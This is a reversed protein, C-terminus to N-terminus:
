WRSTNSEIPSEAQQRRARAAALLAEKWLSSGVGRSTTAIVNYANSRQNEVNAKKQALEAKLSALERESQNRLQWLLNDSVFAIDGIIFITNVFSFHYFQDREHQFIYLNM